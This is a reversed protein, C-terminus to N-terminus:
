SIPFDGWDEAADATKFKKHEITTGTNKYTTFDSTVLYEGPKFIAIFSVAYESEIVNKIQATGAIIEPIVAKTSEHVTILMIRNDIGRSSPFLMHKDKKPGMAELDAFFESKDEFSKIKEWLQESILIKTITKTGPCHLRISALLKDAPKPLQIKCRAIVKM